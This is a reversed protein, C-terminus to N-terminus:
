VLISLAVMIIHDAKLKLLWCEDTTHLIAIM